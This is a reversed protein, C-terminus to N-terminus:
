KKDDSTKRVVSTVFDKALEVKTGDAIRVVFRDDKASTIVGFIGGTTLIEDGVGIAAIMKEREKKQKRPTAFVLFYMSGIFLVWVLVPLGMGSGSQGAADAGTAAAAGAAAQMGAAAPAAPAGTTAQALFLHAASLDMKTM